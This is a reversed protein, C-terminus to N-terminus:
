GDVVERAGSAVEHGRALDVALALAVAAERRSRARAADSSMSAWANRRSTRQGGHPAVVLVVGRLIQSATSRGARGTLSLLARAPRVPM